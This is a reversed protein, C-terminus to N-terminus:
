QKKKGKITTLLKAKLKKSVGPELVFCTEVYGSPAPNVLINGSGGKSWVWVGVQKLETPSFFLELKLWDRTLLLSQTFGNFDDKSLKISRVITCDIEPFNDSNAFTYSDITPLKALTSKKAKVKEKVERIELPDYPAIVFSSSM